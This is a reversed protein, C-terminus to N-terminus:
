PQKFLGTVMAGYLTLVVAVFEQLAISCLTKCVLEVAVSASELKGLADEYEQKAQSLYESQDESDRRWRSVKTLARELGTSARAAEFLVDRKLEWRKQRDWVDNSIRAEIEKTTTTVARLQDVL